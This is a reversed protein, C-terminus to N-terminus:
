YFNNTIFSQYVLIDEIDFTMLNVIKNFALNVDYITLFYQNFLVMNEEQVM